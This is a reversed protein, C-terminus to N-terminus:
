GRAGADPAQVPTGDAGSGREDADTESAQGGDTAEESCSALHYKFLVSRKVGALDFLFGFYFNIVGDNADILGAPPNPFPQAARFAQIAEDDLFALGSSFELSVTALHGDPNLQVRLGTVRQTRAYIAAAPDHRRYVAAPHWHEEVQRKVRTFFSVFQREKTGQASIPGTARPLCKSAERGTANANAPSAPAPAPKTAKVYSPSPRVCALDLAVMLGVVRFM